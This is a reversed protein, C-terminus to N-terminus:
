FVLTVSEGVALAKAADLAAPNSIGFLSVLLYRNGRDRDIRQAAANSLLTEGRFALREHLKQGDSWYTADTTATFILDSERTITIETTTM